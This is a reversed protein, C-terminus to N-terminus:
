VQDNDGDYKKREARQSFGFGAIENSASAAVAFHFRALACYFRAKYTIKKRRREWSRLASRQCDQRRSKSRLSPLGLSDAFRTIEKSLAQRTVGLKEAVIELPRTEIGFLCQLAAIRVLTPNGISPVLWHITALAGARQEDNKLQLVPDGHPFDALIDNSMMKDGGKM